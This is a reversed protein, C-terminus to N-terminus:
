TASSASSTRWPLKLVHDPLGDGDVDMFKLSASTSAVCGNIGPAITLSLLWFSISISINAGLNFSAGTSYELDDDLSFPDLAANLPNNAQDPLSPMGPISGPLSLGTLGNILVSLDHQISDRYGADTVTWAPRYLRTESSFHDGLNYRVRFFPESKLKVVQDALGDGNVDTLTSYTQSATATFGGSVGVSIGGGGASLGGNAGFSGTGTFSIGDTTNKLDGPLGNPFALLTMGSGWDMSPSFTGDGRNLAVSYDGTGGRSVYDPLGDGNMDYFGESQVSSGFTGNLGASGGFMSDPYEPKLITITRPRGKSDDSQNMGGSSGSLSAGFGYSTTDYRALHGGGPLSFTDMKGFGQGNGEVVTFSSGGDSSDNFSVLDPLRDGNLDMIGQYQWSSSANRSASGGIPGFSVNGNLDTSSTHSSRIFPLSQGGSGTGRPIRYYSDGGNRGIAVDDVSIFAAFRYETTTTSLDANMAVDSYSTVNGIWASAPVPVPYDRGSTSIPTTGDSSHNPSMTTSYPPKSNGSDATNSSAGILSKDWGYYGSWNGYYWGFVGGSMTADGRYLPGNSDTPFVM